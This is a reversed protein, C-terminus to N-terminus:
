PDRRPEGEFTVTAPMISSAFKEKDLPTEASKARDNQFGYAYTTSISRCM